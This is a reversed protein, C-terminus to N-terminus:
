VIEDVLYLVTCSATSVFHLIKTRRINLYATLILLELIEDDVTMGTLFIFYLM